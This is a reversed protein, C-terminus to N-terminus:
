ITDQGSWFTFSKEGLCELWPLIVFHSRYYLCILNTIQLSSCTDFDCYGKHKMRFHILAVNCKWRMYEYSDCNKNSKTTFLIMLFYMFAFKEIPWTIDQLKQFYGWISTMICIIKDRLHGQILMSITCMSHIATTNSTNKM